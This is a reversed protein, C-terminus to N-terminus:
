YEDDNTESLSAIIDSWDDSQILRKPLDRGLIALTRAVLETNSFFQQGVARLLAVARKSAERELYDVHTAGEPREGASMSKAERWGMDAIDGRTLEPHESLLKQIVRRQSSVLTHGVGCATAIEARSCDTFLNLKLASNFKDDESMVLRDKANDSRSRLLAADLSGQFVTVPIEGFYQQQRYANLRHHGDLVYWSVGSYWVTVPDLFKMSPPAGIVRALTDIHRQDAALNGSLSRPQFVSLMRKISQVPLTDPTGGDTDATKHMSVEERIIAFGRETEIRPELPSRQDTM